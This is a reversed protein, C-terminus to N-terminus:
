RGLSEAHAKYELSDDLPSLTFSPDHRHIAKKLLWDAIRPNKPLLSGHLYTGIAADILCGETQDDGNNGFGHLVTGLAKANLSSTFSTKGSHNEFGVVSNFLDSKLTCNGIMRQKSAVTQVPFIGLGVLPKEAFPHYSEGLLQYGGCIALIPIHSKFDDIIRDAKKALDSSVSMQSADQGGGFFYLDIQEPIPTGIEIQHLTYEIGRWECRKILTRINGTDGYTNMTHPYLHGIHIHM